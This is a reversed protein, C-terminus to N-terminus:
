SPSNMMADVLDYHEMREILLVDSFDRPDVEVVPSFRSCAISMFISIDSAPAFSIAEAPNSGTTRHAAM